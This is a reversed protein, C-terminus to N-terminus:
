EQRKNYVPQTNFSPSMLWAGFYTHGQFSSGSAVPSGPTLIIFEELSENCNVFVIMRATM